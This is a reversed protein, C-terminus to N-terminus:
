KENLIEELQQLLQDANDTAISPNGAMVTKLLADFTGPGIDEDGHTELMWRRYLADIQQQKGPANRKAVKTFDDPAAIRFWFSDYYSKITTFFSPDGMLDRLHDFYLAGKGYVIASYELAGKFEKAPLQVPRDPGGLMRHLQYNVKMQMAMQQLAAERGYTHEFYLIASYNAMAEDVFPHRKSNSGVVANWWQHAVEHAVVFELLQDFSGSSALLQKLPDGKATESSYKYLLSSITVLGPFEVGGAGGFLPAEVIDLESYPYAGFIREYYEFARVAADSALVGSESHEPLYYSRITTSNAIRTKEEYRASLEVEFDRSLVAEINHMTKGDKDPIRKQVSGTTVVDYQSPAVINVIFDSPDFYSVDGLGSYKEEDWGEADYKSLAAYWLGLNVIDKTSSFLGYDQQTASGPNLMRMLEDMTESFLDKNGKQAPLTASFDFEVTVSQGPQLEKGLFVKLFPGPEEVRAFSHSVKVNSISLYKKDSKTLSHDNPYLFFLLYGTPKKQRNTFTVKETGSYARMEPKIEVNIEYKTRSPLERNARAMVSKNVVAFSSNVASVCLVWLLILHRIM